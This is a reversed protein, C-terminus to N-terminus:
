PAMEFVVGCQYGYTSDCRGGTQGGAYTTGYLNGAADMVLSSEPNAGDDGGTFDHLTTLTWGGDGPALKFVSGLGYAGDGKTTGYLNGVSDVILSAWPGSLGSGPFEYLTTMTWGGASPSLQFITGGGHSGGTVTGGYLNGAPDLVLGGYLYQGNSSGTFTHLLNGAWGAGSNSLEIIGGSTGGGNGLVTTAFLNGYTDMTMGAVPGSATYPFKFLVNETWGQGSRTLEYATGCGFGSCGGMLLGGYQTTGYLNGGADFTVVGRPSEGNPPDSFLYVLSETWPTFVSKPSTPPPKLNYVSDGAAGYLSGDPGVTVTSSPFGGDNNSDTFSYLPAFLWSSGHPTMRYVTGCGRGEFCANNVGGQYTTGYLHGGRDFTLGAAPNGGDNGGTFSHLVAFTQAASSAAMAIVFLGALVMTAPRMSTLSTNKGRAM